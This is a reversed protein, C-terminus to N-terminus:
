NCHLYLQKKYALLAQSQLKNGKVGKTIRSFSKFNGGTTRKVIGIILLLSLYSFVIIIDIM